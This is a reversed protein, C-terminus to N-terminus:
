LHHIFFKEFVFLDVSPGKAM